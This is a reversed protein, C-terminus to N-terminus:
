DTSFLVFEAALCTAARLEHARQRVLERFVAEKAPFYVYFTGQGVGTERTIDAISVRYHDKV